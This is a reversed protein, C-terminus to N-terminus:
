NYQYKDSQSRLRPTPPALRISSRTICSRPGRYRKISCNMDFVLCFCVRPSAIRRPIVLGAFGMCGGIMRLIVVLHALFKGVVAVAVLIAFYVTYGICAGVSCGKSKGKANVEVM